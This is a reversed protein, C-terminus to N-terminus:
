WMMAGMEYEKKLIKRPNAKELAEDPDTGGLYCATMFGIAKAKNREIKQHQDIMSILTRLNMDWFQEESRRFPVTAM